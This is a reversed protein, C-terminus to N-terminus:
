WGTRRPCRPPPPCRRGCREGLMLRIDSGMRTDQMGTRDRCPFVPGTMADATPVPTESAAGTWGSRRGLPVPEVVPHPVQGTSTRYPTVRLYRQCM